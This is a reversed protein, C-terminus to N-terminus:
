QIHRQDEVPLSMKNVLCKTAKGSQLRELSVAFNQYMMDSYTDHCPLCREVRRISRIEEVTFPRVAANRDSKLLERNSVFGEVPFSVDGAGGGTMYIKRANVSVGNDEWIGTGLGLTKSLTHCDICSRSERQTSHPDLPSMSSTVFRKSEAEDEREIDYFVQCPSCTEVGRDTVGLMPTEFRMYGRGEVWRGHSETQKVRDLQMEDAVRHMHCGLCQPMYHSHCSQCSLREHGPMSHYAATKDWYIQFPKGDRKRYMIMSEGLTMGEAASKQVHYLVGGRSGVAIGQDSPKPVAGNLRALRRAEELDAPAISIRGGHCSSCVIEVQSRMNDHLKGDGMLEAGTHCDICDLASKAHHVDPPLELYFRGGSLQRLGPKGKQFPTGYGASEYRGVYSTGIRGSRHHCRLCVDTSIHMTLTAHKYQGSGPDGNGRAQVHCGSCGGGRLPFEGEGKGRSRHFHCGACLKGYLDEAMSADLGDYLAGLIGRNTSMLTNQVREVMEPHCEKRGCTQGVVSLDGPNLVMGAHARHATVAYPNGLHCMACGIAEPQHSKSPAGSPAHCTICQDAPLTDAVMARHGHDNCEVAYLSVTLLLVLVFLIRRM